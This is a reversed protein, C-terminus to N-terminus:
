DDQNGKLRSCTRVLTEVKAIAVMLTDIKLKIENVNNNSIQSSAALNGTSTSLAIIADSLTKIASKLAEEIDDKTNQHKEGMAESMKTFAATADQRLQSISATTEKQAATIAATTQKELEPLKNSITDAYKKNTEDLKYYIYGIFVILLVLVIGIIGYGYGNEMGKTLAQEAVKSAVETM